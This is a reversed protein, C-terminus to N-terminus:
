KLKSPILHIHVHPVDKGEILLKVYDAQHEAKLEWALKKAVRFLEDTYDDPMDLFWEYHETPIVLTHGPAKPFKDPFSAIRGEMHTVKQTDIEGRVIKCFICNEM